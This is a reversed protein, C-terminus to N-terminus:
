SNKWSKMELSASFPMGAKWWDIPSESTFAVGQFTAPPASPMVRSIRKTCGMEAGIPGLLVLATLSCRHSSLPAKAYFRCTASSVVCGLVPTNLARNIRCCFCRHRYHHSQWTSMSNHPTKGAVTNPTNRNAM